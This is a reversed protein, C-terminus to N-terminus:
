VDMEAKDILVIEMSLALAARPVCGSRNQSYTKKASIALAARRISRM